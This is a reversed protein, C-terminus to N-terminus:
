KGAAPRAKATIEDMRVRIVAAAGAMKRDIDFERGTQHRMLLKLGRIKEQEEEIVEARGRGMVSAFSSGYQCAVAGGSIQKVGCELAVFSNPNRRILDLKRGEKASHMYFTLTDQEYVYGYHLPVIYPYGEDLLGLHLVKAEDVIELLKTIDTIERDKRRMSM